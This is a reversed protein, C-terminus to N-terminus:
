SENREKAPPVLRHRDIFTALEEAALRHGAATWHGDHPYHLPESQTKAAERFAPAMAVCPVEHARCWAEVRRQPRDLDWQREQMAPNASIIQSWSEPYVQDRTSLIVVAFGARAEATSRRLRELLGETRGWADAWEANDRAAFVWFDVPVGDRARAARVADRRVLGKEALTQALAPHRVLVLQRMYEYAHSGFRGGVERKRKGHDVRELTGDAAYVPPLTDELTPSNNKVDNGPYFALLVLDPAYRRGDREFYLTESATGYGSVGAALVEVRPARGNQNLQVELRRPFIEDLPVHLAEVFSDGLVLVRVTDAPKAEPREVDRRGAGNIQVPVVFEREEQTWWGSTNPVLRVGLLPDPEWFRDPVLRMWRVGFELVFVAVLLGSAALGVAALIERLRPM